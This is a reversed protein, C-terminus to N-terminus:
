SERRRLLYDAYELDAATDVDVSESASMLLARTREGYLQGGRLVAPTTVLVAPGNRALVPPLDQRRGGARAGSEYPYLWGAEERMLAAPHFSHPVAVVSVVTEAGSSVFLDIAADIHRETRLPSTPQLLVLATVSTGASELVGLAHLMVNLSPTDDQALESPRLFPAEIEWSAATRAIAESDTSVITRDLGASKRAAECTWAILPRGACPAINKNPIGKSGGRAPILGVVSM